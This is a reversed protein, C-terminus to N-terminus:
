IKGSTCAPTDATLGRPLKTKEDQWMDPKYTQEMTKEKMSVVINQDRM